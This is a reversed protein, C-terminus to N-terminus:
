AMDRRPSVAVALPPARLNDALADAAREGEEWAGGTTGWMARSNAEGAFRIRDGVPRSLTARDMARGPPVVAWACLSHPDNMWDTVAMVRLGETAGRGFQDILFTRALRALARRDRGVFPRVTEHDLELYHFPAADIRTLMGLNLRSGTLKALRDPERFPSRPWNLVVHEYTGPLFGAIASATDAPLDPTFRLGGAALVPVPATVIAARATVIGRAGELRLGSGSWDILEVPTRLAVPLGTALRALYSGYGGRIFYNDAFEDSPFDQASVDGLPRGSILAFTAEVPKRWRGLPPMAAAISRDDPQRAAMAVSRDLQEFARGNAHQDAKGGFRGRMVVHGGRPARRLPEGRALGLRVLPNLAGAHLWHAGLDIPHGAFRATVTRGGVRDRAELVAVTLGRALCRRAAAIGAAGSGVIAVDVDSSPAVLAPQDAPIIM